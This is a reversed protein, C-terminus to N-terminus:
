RWALGRTGSLSQIVQWLWVNVWSRFLLPVWEVWPLHRCINWIQAVVDTRFSSCINVFCVTLTREFAHSSSLCSLLPPNVGAIEDEWWVGLKLFGTTDSVVTLAFTGGHKLCVKRPDSHKRKSSNYIVAERRCTEISIRWEGRASTSMLVMELLLFVLFLEM